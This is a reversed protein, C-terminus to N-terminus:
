IGTHCNTKKPLTGRRMMKEKMGKGKVRTKMNKKITKETWQRWSMM